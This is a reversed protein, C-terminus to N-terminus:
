FYLSLIECPEHFHKGMHGFRIISILIIFCTIVFYSPLSRQVSLKLNMDFVRALTDVCSFIGYFLLFFFLGQFLGTTVM